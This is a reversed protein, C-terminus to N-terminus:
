ALPRSATRVMGEPGNAEPLSPPAFDPSSPLEPSNQEAAPSQPLVAANAGPQAAPSPVPVGTMNQRWPTAFDASGDKRGLFLFSGGPSTQVGGGFTSPPPVFSQGSAGNNQNGQPPVSLINGGPGTQMAGFTSPAPVLPQGLTRNGFTGYNQNGQPPAQAQPPAQGVVIQPTCLGLALVAMLALSHSKMKM